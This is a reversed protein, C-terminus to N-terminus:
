GSEERSVRGVSEAGEARKTNPVRCPRCSWDVEMEEGLDVDVGLESTNSARGERENGKNIGGPVRDPRRKLLEEEAETESESNDNSSNEESSSSSEFYSASSSARRYWSPSTLPSCSNKSEGSRM